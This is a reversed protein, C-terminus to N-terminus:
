KKRKIEFFVFPGGKRKRGSAGNEILIGTTRYTSLTECGHLAQSSSTRHSLVLCLRKSEFFQGDNENDNRVDRKEGEVEELFVREAKMGLM